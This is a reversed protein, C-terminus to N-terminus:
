GKKRPKREKRPDVFPKSDNDTFQSVDVQEILEWKGKKLLLMDYTGDPGYDAFIGQMMPSKPSLHDLIICKKKSYYRASASVENSYEMIIRKRAGGEMQFISAGIKIKKGTIVLADIIKRTTLNDKGDWGLITYTERGKKEMPIIEYYLAGLWKEPTLFKNEIKDAEREYDKFETWWFNKDKAEWVLVFCYYSYSGDTRPTNWNFIRVRHDSSTIKCFNLKDFPYDFVEQQDFSAIFLRRMEATASDAEADNPASSLRHHAEAILVEIETVPIAEANALLFLFLVSSLIPRM